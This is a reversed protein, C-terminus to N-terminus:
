KRSYPTSGQLSHHVQSSLIIVRNFVFGSAWYYFSVFNRSGNNRRWSIVLAGFTVGYGRGWHLCKKRPYIERLEHLLSRPVVFCRRRALKAIASNPTVEVFTVYLHGRLHNTFKNNVDELIDPSGIRSIEWWNVRTADRSAAVRVSLRTPIWTCFELNTNYTIQWPSSYRSWRNLWVVHSSYTMSTFNWQYSQGMKLSCNYTRLRTFLQLETLIQESEM